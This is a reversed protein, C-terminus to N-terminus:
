RGAKGLSNKYLQSMQWGKVWEFGSIKEIRNALTVVGLHVDSGVWSFAVFDFLLSKCLSKFQELTKSINCGVRKVKTGPSAQRAM